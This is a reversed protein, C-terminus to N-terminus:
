ESQRRAPLVDLTEKHGVEVGHRWAQGWPLMGQDAVRDDPDPILTSQKRISEGYGLQDLAALMGNAYGRNYWLQSDESHQEFEATEGYLREILRLLRQLIAQNM